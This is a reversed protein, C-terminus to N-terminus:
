GVWVPLSGSPPWKPMLLCNLCIASREQHLVWTFFTFVWSEYNVHQICWKNQCRNVNVDYSIVLVDQSRFCHASCDQLFSIHATEQAKDYAEQTSGFFEHCESTFSEHPIPVGAGHVAIFLNLLCICFAIVEAVCFGTWFDLEFLISISLALSTFDVWNVRQLSFSIPTNGNEVWDFFILVTSVSGGLVPHFHHTIGAGLWLVPAGFTKLVHAVIDIHYRYPRYTRIDIIGRLLFVDDASSRMGMTSALSWPREMGMAWCWCACHPSCCRLHTRCKWGGIYSTWIIRDICIM